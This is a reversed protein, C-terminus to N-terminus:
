HQYSSSPTAHSSSRYPPLPPAGDRSMGFPPRKMDARSFIPRNTRAPAIIRGRTGQPVAMSITLCLVPSSTEGTRCGVASSHSSVSGSLLSM